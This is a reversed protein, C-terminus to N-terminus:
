QGTTSKRLYNLAKEIADTTDGLLGLGLNCNNCLLGRVVGTNHDHDVRFPETFQRQCIACCGSQLHLFAMVDEVTIGYEKAWSWAKEGLWCRFGTKGRRRIQVIPGCVECTATLTAEHVNSLKHKTKVHSLLQRLEPDDYQCTRTCYRKNQSKYIEFTNECGDRKCTRTERKSPDRRRPGSLGHAPRVEMGAERVARLIPHVNSLGCEIRLTESSEGESYRQLVEALPLLWSKRPRGTM